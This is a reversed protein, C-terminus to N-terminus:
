RRQLSKRTNKDDAVLSKAHPTDNTEDQNHIESFVDDYKGKLKWACAGGHCIQKWSTGREDDSSGPTDTAPDKDDDRGDTNLREEERRALTRAKSLSWQGFPEWGSREGYREIVQRRLHSHCHCGYMREVTVKPQGNEMRKVKIDFPAYKKKCVAVGITERGNWRRFDAGWRENVNQIARGQLTDGAASRIFM